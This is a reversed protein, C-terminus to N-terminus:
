AAAALRDVVVPHIHGFFRIEARKGKRHLACGNIEVGDLSLHLFECEAPWECDAEIRCGECSLASVKVPFTERGLTCSADIAARRSSAPKSAM